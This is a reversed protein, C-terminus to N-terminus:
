DAAFEAASDFLSVKIEGRSRVGGNSAVERIGAIPSSRGAMAPSARLMNRAPITNQRWKLCCPSRSGSKRLRTGPTFHRDQSVPATIGARTTTIASARRPVKKLRRWRRPNAGGHSAFCPAPIAPTKEANGM